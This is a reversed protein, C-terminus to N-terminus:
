DPDLQLHRDGTQAVVRRLGRKQNVQLLLDIEAPRVLNAKAKVEVRQSAARLVKVRVGLTLLTPFHVNTEEHVSGRQKGSPANEGKSPLSMGQVVLIGKDEALSTLM